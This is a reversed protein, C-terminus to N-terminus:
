CYHLMRFLLANIERVMMLEIHMLRKSQSIQHKIKLSALFVNSVDSFLFSNPGIVISKPLTLKQFM